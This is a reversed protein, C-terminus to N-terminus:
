EGSPTYVLVRGDVIESRFLKIRTTPDALSRGDSLRFEWGHWPCAITPEGSDVDISGPCSSRLAYKLTGRLLPGGQHPCRESFVWVRDSIRVAGARRRGVQLETVVGEPLDALPGVDIGVSM